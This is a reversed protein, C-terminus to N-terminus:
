KTKGAETVLLEKYALCDDGKHESCPKIVKVPVVWLPMKEEM